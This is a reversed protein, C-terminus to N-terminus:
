AAPPRPAGTTNSLLGGAPPDGVANLPRAVQELSRGEANVGLTWEIAAGVAMVAAGILYGIWLKSHHELYTASRGNTDGILKGYFWPGFSGFCQAIAFFVAIAKARM